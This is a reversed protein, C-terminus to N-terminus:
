NSDEDRDGCIPVIEIATVSELGPSPIMEDFLCPAFASARRPIKRAAGAGLVQLLATSAVCKRSAEHGGCLDLKDKGAEQMM